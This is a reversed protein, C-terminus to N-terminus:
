ASRFKGRHIDGSMVPLEGAVQIQRDTDVNATPGEPNGIARDLVEGLCVQKAWIRLIHMRGCQRILHDLQKCLASPRSDHCWCHFHLHTKTKRCGTTEYSM